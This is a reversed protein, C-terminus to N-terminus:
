NYFKINALKYEANAGAHVCIGIWVENLDADSPIAGITLTINKTGDGTSGVPNGSEQAAIVDASTSALSASTPEDKFAGIRLPKWQADSNLATTSIDIKSYDSLKYTGEFKVKFYVVAGQYNPTGNTATFTNADNVVITTTGTAKVDGDTFTIVKDPAPPATEPFVATIALTDGTTGAAHTVTDAGTVTLGNAAIGDFTYGAKKTLTITATYATGAAFTAPSSSWTVTGTYQLTDIETVPTAGSAPKLGPVPVEVKIPNGHEVTISLIKLQWAATNPRGQFYLVSTPLTDGYAVANIRKTNVKEDGIFTYYDAPSIDALASNKKTTLPANGKGIYTIVITDSAIIPLQDDPIKVTFYNGYGDNIPRSIIGTATDVSIESGGGVELDKIADANDFTPPEPPVEEHYFIDTATQPSGNIIYGDVVVSVTVTTVDATVGSISLDYTVGGAVSVAAGLTGKVISAPALTINDASLGPIEQDFELTLTNTTETASGNATVGAFTATKQKYFIKVTNIPNDDADNDITINYGFKAVTVTLTSVAPFIGEIPLVYVPANTSDLEGAVVGNVGELTIDDASLGEIVDSFTLTLETTTETDEVGNAELAVFTVEERKLYIEVTKSSPTFTYSPKKEVKVTLQAIGNDDVEFDSIPLTYTTKGGSTTPTSLLGMKIKPSIPVTTLSIDTFAALDTIEQDFELTLTTTTSTAEGNTDKDGDATLDSFVVEVVRFYIDVEKFEPTIKFGEKKVTVKLKGSETFGEIDLTYYSGGPNKLTGKASVGEVGSFTIDTEASLGTIISDFSLQIQTTTVDKSGNAALATFSVTKVYFIKVQKNGAGAINFGPITNEVKVTLTGSETFDGIPLTYIGPTNGASLPEGKKVGSVGSITIHGATLGTIAKSFTLTLQTTPETANGNATVETLSVDEATPDSPKTYKVIDVTRSAPEGEDNGNIKYGEKKVEVKVSGSSTVSNATLRLVYTAGINSLTGKTAGTTTTLTIDGVALGEIVKDFHLYLLTTTSTDSGDHSIGSFTIENDGNPKQIVVEPAPPCGTTLMAFVALLALISFIGAKKMERKMGEETKRSYQGM